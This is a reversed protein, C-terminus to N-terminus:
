FDNNDNQMMMKNKKKQEYRDLLNILHLFLTFIMRCFPIEITAM